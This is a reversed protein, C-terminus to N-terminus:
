YIPDPDLGSYSLLLRGIHLLEGGSWRDVVHYRDSDSIELIWQAGDLGNSERTTPLSWFGLDRVARDLDRMELLSVHREVSRAVPGRNVHASEIAFLRTLGDVREVRISIAPDFSRLWLFRLRREGSGPPSLPPEGLVCLTNAYWAARFREAPTDGFVNPPFYPLRASEEFGALAHACDVQQDTTPPPFTSPPRLRAVHVATETFGAIAARLPPVVQRTAFVALVFLITAVVAAAAYRKMNYRNTVM